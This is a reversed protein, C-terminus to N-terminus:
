STRRPISDIRYSLMLALDDTKPHISIRELAWQILADEKAILNFPEELVSSWSGKLQIGKRVVFM